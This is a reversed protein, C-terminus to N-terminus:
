GMTQFSLGDKKKTEIANQIIHQFVEVAGSFSTVLLGREITVFYVDSYGHSVRRDHSFLELKPYGREASTKNNGSQPSRGHQNRVSALDVSYPFPCITQHPFYIAMLQMKNVKM